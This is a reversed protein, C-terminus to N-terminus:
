NYINQIIGFNHNRVKNKLDEITLYYRSYDHDLGRCSGPGYKEYWGKIKRELEANAEELARVNDLYSALRDNLNQMTVKENGSLLGGESGAFGACAANGLASGAHNGGSVSGLGGGLACSFGSGAVSSGCANSGAFGAGGSPPRVSGTGSWLCIRRSGSSFRLSMTTHSVNAKDTSLQLKLPSCFITCQHNIQAKIGM